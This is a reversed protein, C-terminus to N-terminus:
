PNAAARQPTTLLEDLTEPPELLHWIRVYHRHLEPDDRILQVLAHSRDADGNPGRVLREMFKGLRWANSCAMAAHRLYAVTLRALQERGPDDPSDKLLDALGSAQWAAVSLGQGFLPNLAGIADGIPLFGVLPSPLYEYRRWTATARRFLHLGGSVTARQLLAAISPDELTTAFEQMAEFTEPPEDVSRGSLSVYWLSPTVPSVLGGRTGRSSPFTLWFSEDGVWSAPRHCLCTVYWQQPRATEIPVQPQGIETLWQRGHSGAGTADVVIEADVIETTGDDNEVMAGSIANKSTVKLGIARVGERIRVPARDRLMQLAVRDIVPRSACVLRLGLNREPMREGLEYVHTQDAVRAESCGAERLAASFGPLLREIEMQARGLLNHLQDAQPLGRRSAKGEQLRDREILVIEGCSERLAAAATIGALGCGLVAARRVRIASM